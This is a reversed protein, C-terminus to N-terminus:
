NVHKYNPDSLFHAIDRILELAVTVGGIKEDPDRLISLLPLLPGKIIVTGDNKFIDICRASAHIFYADPDSRVVNDIRLTYWAWCLFKSGHVSVKFGDCERSATKKSYFFGPKISFLKKQM